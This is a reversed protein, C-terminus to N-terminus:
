LAVIGIRFRTEDISDLSALQPLGNVDASSFRARLSPSHAKELDLERCASGPRSSCRTQRGASVIARLRSAAPSALDTITKPADRHDHGFRRPQRM